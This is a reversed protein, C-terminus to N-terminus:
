KKLKIWELVEDSSIKEECLRKVIMLQLETLPEINLDRQNILQEYEQQTPDIYSAFECQSFLPEIDEREVTWSQIKKYLNRDVQSTAFYFLKRKEKVFELTQWMTNHLNGDALVYDTKSKRRLLFINNDQDRIAVSYVPNQLLTMNKIRTIPDIKAILSIFELKSNALVLTAIPEFTPDIYKESFLMKILGRYDYPNKTQDTIHEINIHLHPAVKRLTDPSLTTLGAEFRQIAQRTIGVANALDKQKVSKLIRSLKFLKNLGPKM